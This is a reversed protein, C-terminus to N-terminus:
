YYFYCSKESTKKKWKNAYRQLIASCIFMVKSSKQDHFKRSLWELSIPFCQDQCIYTKSIVTIWVKDKTLLIIIQSQQGLDSWSALSLIYCRWCRFTLSSICCIVYAYTIIYYATKYSDVSYSEVIVVTM